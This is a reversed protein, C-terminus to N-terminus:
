RLNRLSNLKKAKGARFEKESQQLDAVLRHEQWLRLIDRFFESKSSYQGSKVAEQVIGVM